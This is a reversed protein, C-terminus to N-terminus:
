ILVVFKGNILKPRSDQYEIKFLKTKEIYRLIDETIPYERVCDAINPNISKYKYYGINKITNNVGFLM